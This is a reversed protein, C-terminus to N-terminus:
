EAAARLADFSHIWGFREPFRALVSNRRELAGDDALHLAANTAWSSRQVVRTRAKRLGAYHAFVDILPQASRRSLLGALTVADEITTNAGQGQHPLMGHAADGILVVRGRYWPAPMLLSGVPRHVIRRPDTIRSRVEGIHGGFDALLDRMVAPWRQPELRPNGHVNQVLYIYMEEHSVPNFGAKHRPGYYAHRAKM